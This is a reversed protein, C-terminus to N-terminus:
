AAVREAALQWLAANFSVVKRVDHLERTHVVRGLASKGELGGRMMNEQVVNFTRWLDNGEDQPRRAKLLDPATIPAVVKGDEDVYRLALAAAAFTTRQTDSLKVRQMDDVLSLVKGSHGLTEEVKAMIAELEGAHRTAMGAFTRDAVILGNACVLRFMGFMIAARCRGNHSNSFVIEPLVEGVKRGELKKLDANRAFRILHRASTSEQSKRQQADVPVLDMKALAEVVTSSPIFTYREGMKPSAKTAYVSPVKAKLEAPTLARRTKINAASLATQTQM